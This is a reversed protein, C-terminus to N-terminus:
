GLPASTPLAEQAYDALVMREKLRVACFRTGLVTKGQEDTRVSVVETLPLAALPGNSRSLVLYFHDGRQVARDVVLRAGDGSLDEIVVPHRRSWAELRELASPDLAEGEQLRGRLTYAGATTPLAWAEIHCPKREARRRDVDTALLDHSVVWERNGPMPRLMLTVVLTQTPQDGRQLHLEQRVPWECRETCALHINDADVALVHAVVPQAGPEAPDRLLVKEFPRPASACLAERLRMEDLLQAARRAFREATETQRFATLDAGLRTRLAEASRLMERAADAGDRWLLHGLFCSAESSLGRGRAELAVAAQLQLRRLWALAAGAGAIGGALVALDRIFALSAAVGPFLNILSELVAV